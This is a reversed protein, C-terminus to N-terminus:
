TQTILSKLAILLDIKKQTGTDTHAHTHTNAGVLGINSITTTTLLTQMDWMCTTIECKMEGRMMPRVFDNENIVRMDNVLYWVFDKRTRSVSLPRFRRKATSTFQLDFVPVWGAEAQRSAFQMKTNSTSHRQHIMMLLPLLMIMLCRNFCVALLLSHHHHLLYGSMWVSRCVSM